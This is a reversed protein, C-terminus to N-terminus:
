KFPFLDSMDLMAKMLKDSDFVVDNPLSLQHKKAFYDIFGDTPENHINYEEELEKKVEEYKQNAHHKDVYIIGYMIGYSVYIEYPGELSSFLSVEVVDDYVWDVELYKNIYHRQEESFCDTVNVWEKM